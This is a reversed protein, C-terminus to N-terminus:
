GQPQKIRRLAPLLRYRLYRGLKNGYIKRSLLDMLQYGRRNKIARIEARLKESESNEWESVPTEWDLTTGNYLLLTYIEKGYQEFLKSHHEVLLKRMYMAANRNLSRAMSNSRVRYQTLTDPICIGFCGHEIMGLWGDYDELGYEMDTHNHGFALYEKTRSVAMAPLMNQACIYPLETDFTVWTADSGEFYQMWSYVYSANKYRRLLEICRSFYHPSVTDDSDIFCIFEGRAMACAANRVSALGRNRTRVLKVDRYKEAIRQAKCVSEEETSGDDFLIIERNTYDASHISEITEDITRGMNFYPIVVSLMGRVEKSAAIDDPLPAKKMMQAFPYNEQRGEQQLVREYYRVRIPINNEPSCCERIRQYGNEGIVRLEKESCALVRIITHYFDDAIEWDFIFGNRGDASVAESQGGQRSVIVPVHNSMAIVNTYPYNEYLSPIIVARSGAILENMEDLPVKEKLQLLGKDIWSGYKERIMDGMMRGSPEYFVDGGLLVLQVREGEEWLRVMQPLINWIGKRYELRGTYLLYDGCQYEKRQKEFRYPLPIVTIEKGNTYPLLRDRLFESQTLLADAARMCFKEMQGIWYNPFRYEANRDIRNVEFSPTHCHVVIKASQLRPEGLYKAQIVYYGIANFDAIEIIDPVGSQDILRLTYELYKKYLTVQYGLRLTEEGECRKFRVITRHTEPHEIGDMQDATLVTVQHGIQALLQSITDVYMGIGGGFSPPFEDTLFLLKM